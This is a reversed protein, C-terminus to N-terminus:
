RKLGYSISLMILVLYIHIANPYGSFFMWQVMFAVIIAWLWKQRRTVVFLGAIVALFGVLGVLGRELLIEVYENQVIERAGIRDPSAQHMAVGAGGVGVGFWMTSLNQQWAMLALASRNVRVNTSEEAYGDFVPDQKGNQQSTEQKTETPIKVVGLTLQNISKTVAGSFTESITPNIMAALGQMGLSAVLVMFSLGAFVAINKLHKRHILILVMLGIVLAYIAGRSMTLFLAVLMLILSDYTDYIRWKAPASLVRHAVILIAPLLMNGFFQPEIAFVNPRPFGFQTAMCGDCMLTVSQPLWIGAFFQIIALGSMIVATGVYVQAMRPLLKVLKKQEAIAGIAVLGLLGIIGSTLVSRLPNVSWLTTLCSYVVFAGVLWVWRNTALTRWNKIISALSALGLLALFALPLSIEFNMTGDQGFHFNPWYSFWVVVPAILWLAEYLKLRESILERLRKM